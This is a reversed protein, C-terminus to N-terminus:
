LPRRPFVAEPGQNMYRGKRDAYSAQCEYKSEFFIAQAIGELPYVVIGLGTPNILEITLFGEWEPEAPTTNVILGCRAYTSRGVLIVLCNRPVKFLECSWGLAFSHPPMVFVGAPQVIVSEACTSDFNKPDLIGTKSGTGRTFLQFTNGIRIDYGYSSVGYPIEGRPSM